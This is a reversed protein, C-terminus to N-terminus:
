RASNPSSAGARIREWSERLLERPSPMLGGRYHFHQSSLVRSVASLHELSRSERRLPIWCVMGPQEPEGPQWAWVGSNDNGFALNGARTPLDFPPTIPDGTGADWVQVQANRSLTALWRADRSFAARQVQDGHLLPRLLQRSTEVEWVLATKDEGCTVLQDGAPSFCAYIVGDRHLLPSGLPRGSATEFVLAAEGRAPASSCAVVLKRGDPSFEVSKVEGGVVTPTAWVNSGALADVLQVMQRGRSSLAVAIRRGERDSFAAQIRSGAFELAWRKRGDTMEHLELTNTSRVGVSQGGGLLVPRDLGSQVRVRKGQDPGAFVGNFVLERFPEGEAEQPESLGVWDKGGPLIRVWKTGGVGTLRARGRLEGGSLDLREIGENTLSLGCEIGADFDLASWSRLSHVKPLQWVRTTGDQSVSIVRDGEPSLGAFVVHEGHHLVPGAPHGTLANLLLVRFEFDSVVLRRGDASFEVSRAVSTLEFPVPLLDRGDAASWVRLTRDFSSTAVRTGDPSFAGWTVWTTHNTYRAVESGERTDWIVARGDEGCSIARDGQRSFAVHLVRKVHNRLVFEKGTDVQHLVVGGDYLGAIVQRGDPSIRASTVWTPLAIELLPKNSRLDWLRVSTERRSSTLAITADANLCAFEEGRLRGFEPSLPASDGVRRLQFLGNTTQILVSDGNTAFQGYRAEQESFWLQLLQPSRDLVAAMRMRHTESTLPDADSLALAATFWPLAGSFDQNEMAQSGTTVFAGIKRQALEVERLRLAEADERSRWISFGVAGFAILLLLVPLALRRATQLTRELRLLRRLSTGAKLLSLHFRLDEAKQYRRGPDEDCCKCVVENWEAFTLSGVPLPPDEPLDPFRTCDLGTAMEYLIKGLAFIDANPAGPGERPVYGETGVFTVSNGVETVLGIDALKPRGNVFVINAPKLDRHVLGQQHLRALASSLELGIELCRDLPLQPHVDLESALTRPCYRAPDTKWSEDLSDGLEMVYYFYGEADKRGIHLIHLFGEHSRSIPEFRLLGEFEREYPRLSHFNAQSVVKVARYAGAVNRALWIQGYSGGGILSILEHDPIVPQLTASQISM